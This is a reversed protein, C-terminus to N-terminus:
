DQKQNFIYAEGYWLGLKDCRDNTMQVRPLIQFDVKQLSIGLMQVVVKM